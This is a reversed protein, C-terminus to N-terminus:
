SIYFAENELLLWGYKYVSIWQPSHRVSMLLGFAESPKHVSEKRRKTALVILWCRMELTNKQELYGDWEYEWNNLRVIWEPSHIPRLCPMSTTVANKLRARHRTWAAPTPLGRLGLICIVAANFIIASNMPIFRGITKQESTFNLRSFLIRWRQGGNQPRRLASHVHKSVNIGGGGRTGRVTQGCDWEVNLCQRM